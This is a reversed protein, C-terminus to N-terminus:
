DMDPQSIGRNVGENSWILVESWSGERVEFSPLSRASAVPM